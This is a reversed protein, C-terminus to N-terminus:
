SFSRACTKWEHDAWPARAGTTIAPALPERIHSSLPWEHSSKELWNTLTLM